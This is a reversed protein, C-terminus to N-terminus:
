SDRRAIRLANDIPKSADSEGPPLVKQHSSTDVFDWPLHRYDFGNFMNPKIIAFYPSVDFDRPVFLSHHRIHWQERVCGVCDRPLGPLLEILPLIPFRVSQFAEAILSSCIARTPDGSGLALMRRRWATPVPPTPLLYRVLDFVNKLDYRNGLRACVHAVVRTADEDTLGMPRCLRLQLGAFSDLGVVHVGNEVDAEVFAPQDCGGETSPLRGIYIAAHSWTSQTLYKIATSIRRDGDVLLIDAPKLLEGLVTVDSPPQSYHRHIPQNLYSALLRGIVYLLSKMM